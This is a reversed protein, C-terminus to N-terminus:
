ADFRDPLATSTKTKSGHHLEAAAIALCVLGPTPNEINRLNQRIKEWGWRTDTQVGIDLVKVILVSELGRWISNYHKESGRGSIGHTKAEM